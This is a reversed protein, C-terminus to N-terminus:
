LDAQRLRDAIVAGIIVLGIIMMQAFSSVNTLNLGNRLLALTAVGLFVGGITGRGGTLAMGGIVAAAIADLEALQGLNPQGSNVRSSLITGALGALAGTIMFAVVKYRFTRIGALRAAEENGGVAYLAPGFRTYRLFVAAGIMVIAAIVVPIPVPGVFGAGLTLYSRPLGSFIPQGNTVWLTWGRLATLMGITVIVSHVRFRAVIFGNVFGVGAGLLTGAVLGVMGLQLVAWATVVSSAGIVSGVSIDVHGLLLVFAEATALIALDSASRTVNVANSATLMRPQQAAFFVVMGALVVLLGYKGVLASARQSRSPGSAPSNRRGPGAPRITEDGTDTAM